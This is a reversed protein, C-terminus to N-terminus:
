KTYVSLNTEHFLDHLEKSYKRRWQSVQGVPGFIGRWFKRAFIDLSVEDAVCL